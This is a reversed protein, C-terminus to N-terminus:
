ILLFSGLCITDLKFRKIKDDSGQDVNYGLCVGRHNAGYHSWMLMNSHSSGAMGLVGTENFCYKMKDKIEALLAFCYNRDRGTSTNGGYEPNTAYYKHHNIIGM